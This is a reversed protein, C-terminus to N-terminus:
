VDEVKTICRGEIDCFSEGIGEFKIKKKHLEGSLEDYQSESLEELPPNKFDHQEPLFSISKLSDEYMTLAEPIQDIEHEKVTVTCSVMNDSWFKQFKSARELQTYLNSNKYTPVGPTAKIPFEVVYTSKEPRHTMRFGQAEFAELAPDSEQYEVRRLYFPAFEPHIGPSVGLLLSKTGSPQVTTRKISTSVGLWHSYEHDLGTLTKYLSDAMSLTKRAGHIAFSDMIGSMSIGIRRNRRVIVNSEEWNTEVLSVAKCFIYVLKATRYIKDLSEHRSPYIEGLNCFEKPWLSIEACPNCGKVGWDLNNMPDAMRGYQRANQLWFFGLDKTGRLKEPAFSYDMGLEAVVSDNSAWRIADPGQVMARDYKRTIYAEDDPSGLALQATRRVNGAVVCQGIINNLDAIDVSTLYSGAREELLNRIKHHMIKLPEPGSSLGGFGRIPAGAPRIKDYNFVPTSYEDLYANVLTILSQVWGERSDEIIYVKEGIYTGRVFQGAGFVDFGVGVGLMSQDMMFALQNVLDGKSTDFACNQLASGGAKEICPTGMTWLARGSPLGHFEWFTEFMKQAARQTKAESWERKNVQCHNKLTSFCGEVVRKFVQPVTEIKDTEPNKRVYTRFFVTRGIPGWKPERKEYIKYFGDDIRFSPKAIEFM